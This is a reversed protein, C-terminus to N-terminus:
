KKNQGESYNRAGVGPSKSSINGHTEKRSKEAGM